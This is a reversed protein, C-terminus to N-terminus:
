SQIKSELLKIVQGTLLTSGFSSFSRQGSSNSQNGATPTGGNRTGGGPFGGGPFGGGPFGGGTFGGTRQGNNRNTGNGTANAIAGNGTTGGGTGTGLAGSGQLTTFIDRQTLQMADIAQIQQSTMTSQIQDVTATIEQPAASSSTNLQNLLQWLSLLQAAQTANVAQPTGELKLTGIALKMEPTLAGTGGAQNSGNRQVRTATASSTSSGCATLILAIGLFIGILFTKKM